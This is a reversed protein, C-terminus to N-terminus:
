NKCRAGYFFSFFSLPTVVAAIRLEEDVFRWPLYSTRNKVKFLARGPPLGFNVVRIAM